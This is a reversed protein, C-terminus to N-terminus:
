NQSSPIITNPRGEVFCFIIVVEPCRTTSELYNMRNAVVSATPNPFPLSSNTFFTCIKPKEKTKNRKKRELPHTKRSDPKIVSYVNLCVKKIIMERKANYNFKSDLSFAFNRKGRIKKRERQREKKIILDNIRM